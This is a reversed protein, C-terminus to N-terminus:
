LNNIQNLNKVKLIDPTGFLHEVECQPSVSSILKVGVGNEVRRKKNGFRKEVFGRQWEQDAPVASQILAQLTYKM